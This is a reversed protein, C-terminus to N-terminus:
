ENRRAADFPNKLPGVPNSSLFTEINRAADVTSTNAARTRIETVFVKGVLAALSVLQPRRFLEDVELPNADGMEDNFRTLFSLLKAIKDREHQQSFDDFAKRLEVM